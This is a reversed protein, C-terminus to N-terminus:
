LTCKSKLIDYMHIVSNTFYIFWFVNFIAIIRCDGKPHINYTKRRLSILNYGICARLM